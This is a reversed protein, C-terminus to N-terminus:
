AARRGGARVEDVDNGPDGAEVAEVADEDEAVLRVSFTFCEATDDDDDEAEEDAAPDTAPTPKLFSLFSLPLLDFFFFDEASSLSLFFLLLLLLLHEESLSAYEEDGDDAPGAEGDDLTLWDGDSAAEGDLSTAKRKPLSPGAPPLSSDSSFFTMCSGGEFLTLTLFFSLHSSIAIGALFALQHM